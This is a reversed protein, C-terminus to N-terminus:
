RGGLAGAVRRLVWRFGPSVILGPLAGLMCVAGHILSWLIPTLVGALGAISADFRPFRAPWLAFAVGVLFALALAWKFADPKADPWLPLGVVVGILCGIGADSLFDTLM